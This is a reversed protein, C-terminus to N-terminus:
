ALQKRKGKVPTRMTSSVIDRVEEPIHGYVDCSLEIAIKIAEDNNKTQFPVRMRNYGPKDKQCIGIEYGKDGFVAYFCTNLADNWKENIIIQWLFNHLGFMTDSAFKDEYKDHLRNFKDVPEEMGMDLFLKRVRDIWSDNEVSKDSFEKLHEKLLAIMTPTTTNKENLAETLERANKWCDKYTEGQAVAIREKGKFLISTFLEQGLKPTSFTVVQAKPKKDTTKM